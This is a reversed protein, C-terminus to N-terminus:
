RSRKEGAGCGGGKKRRRDEREGRRGGGSSRASVTGLTLRARRLWAPRDPAGEWRRGEGEEKEGAGADVRRYICGLHVLEDDHTHARRDEHAEKKEKEKKRKRACRL